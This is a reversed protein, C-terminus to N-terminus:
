FCCRQCTDTQSAVVKHADHLLSNFFGSDGACLRVGIHSQDQLPEHM